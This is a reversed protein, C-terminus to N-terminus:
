PKVVEAAQVIAQKAEPPTPTTPDAVAAAAATAIAVKAEPAVVTNPDDVGAKLAKAQSVMTASNSAFKAMIGGIVPFAVIIIAWASTAGHVIMSLGNFIENFADTLGKSQSASMLGVGGIFGAITSAYNRGSALLRGITESSFAV